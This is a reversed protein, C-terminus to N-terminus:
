TCFGTNLGNSPLRQASAHLDEIFKVAEVLLFFCSCLIIPFRLLTVNALSAGLEPINEFVIDLIAIKLINEHDVDLIAIDWLPQNNWNDTPWRITRSMEKDWAEVKRCIIRFEEHVHTKIVRQHAVSLSYMLGTSSSFNDLFDVEEELEINKM